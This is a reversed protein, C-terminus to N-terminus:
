FCAIITHHLAVHPCFCNHKYRNISPKESNNILMQTFAIAKPLLTNAKPRINLFFTCHRNSTHNFINAKPYIVCLMVRINIAKLRMDISFAWLHADNLPLALQCKSFALQLEKFTLWCYPLRHNSKPAHSNSQTSHQNSKPSLRNSKPIIRNSKLSLQNSKTLHYCMSTTYITLKTNSFDECTRFRWPRLSLITRFM